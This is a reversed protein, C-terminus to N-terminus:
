KRSSFPLRKEVKEEESLTYGLKILTQPTLYV